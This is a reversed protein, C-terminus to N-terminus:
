QCRLLFNRITSAITSILPSREESSGMAVASKVDLSKRQVPVESTKEESRMLARKSASSNPCRPYIPSHSVFKSTATCKRHYFAMAIMPEYLGNSIEDFLKVNVM